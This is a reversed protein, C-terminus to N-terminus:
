QAQSNSGRSRKYIRSKKFYCFSAGFLKNIHKYYQYKYNHYGSFQTCNRRLKDLLREINDTWSLTNEDEKDITLSNNNESM